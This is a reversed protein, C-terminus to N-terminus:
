FAPVVAGKYKEEIFKKVDPTNLAAALKKIAASDKNDE